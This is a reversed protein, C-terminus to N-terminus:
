SLPILEYSCEGNEEASKKVIGTESEGDVTVWVYIDATFSSKEECLGFAGDNPVLETINYADYIAETVEAREEKELSTDQVGYSVAGSFLGFMPILFAAGLVWESVSKGNRDRKWIVFIFVLGLAIALGGPVYLHLFSAPTYIDVIPEM